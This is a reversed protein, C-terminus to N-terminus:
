KKTYEIWAAYLHIADTGHAAPVLNVNLFGTPPGSINANALTTTVEALTNSLAGTNGGMETDGVGDWAQVDIVPTDTAGSVKALLHVTIDTAPDLDHPYPVPPFQVEDVNTAAWEVRLAKDTAGNDRKLIPTSDSALIGGHNALTTTDDSVIERLSTIDLPIFGKNLNATLTPGLDSTDDDAFFKAGNLHFDGNQDTYVRNAHHGAEAAM